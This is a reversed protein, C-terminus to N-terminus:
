SRLMGVDRWRRLPNPWDAVDDNDTGGRWSAGAGWHVIVIGGEVIDSQFGQWRLKYSHTM